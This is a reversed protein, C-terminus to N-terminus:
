SVCQLRRALFSFCREPHAIKRSEERKCREAAAILRRNGREGGTDWTIIVVLLIVLMVAISIIKFTLYSM